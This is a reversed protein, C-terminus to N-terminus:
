KATAQWLSSMFIRYPDTAGNARSKIITEAMGQVFTLLEQCEWPSKEQEAPAALRFGEVEMVWFAGHQGHERAIDIGALGHRRLAARVTAIHPAVHDALADAARILMTTAAAARGNNRITTELADRVQWEHAESPRMDGHLVDNWVPRTGIRYDTLKLYGRATLVHRVLEPHQRVFRAHLMDAPMLHWPVAALLEFSRIRRECARMADHEYRALDAYERGATLDDFPHRMTELTRFLRAPPLLGAPLELGAQNAQGAISELLYLGQSQLEIFRHTSGFATRAIRAWERSDFTTGRRPIPRVGCLHLLAAAGAPTNNALEGLDTVFAYLGALQRAERLDQASCETMAEANALHDANADRRVESLAEQLQFNTYGFVQQWTLKGHDTLVTANALSAHEIAVIMGTPTILSLGETLQGLQLAAATVSLPRHLDITTM